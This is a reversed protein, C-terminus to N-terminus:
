KGRMDYYDLLCELAAGVIASSGALGSARPITTEYQLTFPARKPLSLSHQGIYHFFRRLLAQTRRM